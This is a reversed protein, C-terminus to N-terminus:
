LELEIVQGYDIKMEFAKEVHFIELATALARIVGSHTFILIQNYDKNNVDNIFHEVRTILDRFSEGNTPSEDIWNDYWKQLQPDSINDWYKCEWSGFSMEMLRNDIIPKQFGCFDALKTCRELPSSFVADYKRNQIKSYAFKAEKEFRESVAIDSQGYCIGPSINLSTHRVLTIKM